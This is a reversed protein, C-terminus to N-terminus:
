FRNLCLPCLPCSPCSPAYISNAVAGRLPARLVFCAAGALRFLSGAHKRTRGTENQAPPRRQRGGTAFAIEAHEALERNFTTITKKTDEHKRTRRQNSEARDDSRLTV